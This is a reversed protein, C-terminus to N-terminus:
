WNKEIRKVLEEKQKGKEKKKFRVAFVLVSGVAIPWAFIPVEFNPVSSIQPISSAANKSSAIAELYNGELLAKKAEELKEETQSNGLGKNFLEAASNYSVIADEKISELSTELRQSISAGELINLGLEEEFSGVKELAQSFLGKELFDEFEGFQKKSLFSKLNSIKLRLKDLETRSIPPLYKASVLDSDQVKSFLEELVALTEEAVEIKSSALNIKESLALADEEFSNNDLVPEPLEEASEEIPESDIEPLNIEISDPEPSAIALQEELLSVFEQLSEELDPLVPLAKELALEEKYFFDSFKDLESELSSIKKLSIVESDKNAAKITLLLDQALSFNEELKNVAPKSKLFTELDQKISLCNRQVCALDPYPKEIANLEHFRLKFDDLSFPSSIKFISELYFFCQSLSLEKELQYQEFDKLAASFLDFQEVMQSCKILSQETSKANRFEALKFKARAKLDSVLATNSPPLESDELSQETFSARENCLVLLGEVVENSLYSINEQLFSLENNLKKLSFAKQGLSITGLASDHKIDKLEQELLVLKSNAQNSLQGFDQISYQQAGVGTEQGLGTYLSQFFNQDFSSYSSTLLQEISQRTKFIGQEAKEELENNGQILDKRHLANNRVIKSFEKLASNEIGMFGAYAQMFEFSPMSELGPMATSTTSANALFAIFSPFGAAIFPIGISSELYQGISDTNSELVQFINAESVIKQEFGTREVLQEFSKTQSLFLCAYSKNRPCEKLSLDNLNGAILAFDNFLPEEKALEIDEEKLSSHELLLFAFSERNANDSFEFAKAMNHTLENLHFLLPSIGTNQKCLSHIESINKRAKNFYLWSQAVNNKYANLREVSEPNLSDHDFDFLNKQLLSFCKEQSACEPVFSYSKETLDLCQLRQSASLSDICGSLILLLLALIAIKQM